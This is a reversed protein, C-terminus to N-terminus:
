GKFPVNVVYVLKTPVKTNGNSVLVEVLDMYPWLPSESISACWLEGLFYVISQFKVKLHKFVNFVLNVFDM